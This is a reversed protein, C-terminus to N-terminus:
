GDGDTIEGVTSNILWGTQLDRFYDLAKIAEVRGQDWLAFGAGRWIELPEHRELPVMKDDLESDQSLCRLGEGFWYVHRGDLADVWGFPPLRVADGSFHVQKHNREHEPLGNLRHHQYPVRHCTLSYREAFHNYAPEDGAFERSRLWPLWPVAQLAANAISPYARMYQVLRDGHSYLRGFEAENLRRGVGPGRRNETWSARGAHEDRALCLAKCLRSIFHDVHDVQQLEWYCLASIAVQEAGARTGTSQARRNFSTSLICQPGRETPAWANCIIQRRYFARQVRLREVRSLPAAFPGDAGISFKHMTVYADTLFNIQHLTACLGMLEAYSFPAGSRRRDLMTRLIVADARPDHSPYRYPFVSLIKADAMILGLENQLVCLIVQEKRRQFCRHIFHSVTILNGLARVSDMQFLIHDIIEPALNDLCCRKQDPVQLHEISAM